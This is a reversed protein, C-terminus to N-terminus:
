SIPVDTAEEPSTRVTSSCLRDSEVGEQVFKVDSERLQDPQDVCKGVLVADDDANCFIYSCTPSRLNPSRLEFGFCM